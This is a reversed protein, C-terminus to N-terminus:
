GRSACKVCITVQPLLLIRGIPIQQHCSRCIGFEPDDIKTLAIKLNKLKTIAKELTADNVSKNNIADMRSVRGISNEPAIPKTLEKFKTVTESTLEIEATIRSQIDKLEVKSYSM